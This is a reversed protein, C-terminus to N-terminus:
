DKGPVEFRFRQLWEVGGPRVEVAEHGAQYSGGDQIGMLIVPEDWHSIVRQLPKGSLPSGGV